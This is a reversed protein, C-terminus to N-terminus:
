MVVIRLDSSTCFRYKKGVKFNLISTHRQVKKVFAHIIANQSSFFMLIQIKTWLIRQYINKEIKGEQEDIKKKENIMFVAHNYFYSGTWIYMFICYVIKFRQWSHIIITVHPRFKFNISTLKCNFLLYIIYWLLSLEYYIFGLRRLNVECNFANFFEKKQLEYQLM